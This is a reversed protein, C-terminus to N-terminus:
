KGDYRTDVMDALRRRQAPLGLNHVAFVRKSLFHGTLDLGAIWDHKSCSVGGLFKPLALMRNAFAGAQHVGVAGGSKPSVYALDTTEGSAACRSLDLRYGVAALLGIEWRVYGELWSTNDDDLVIVDLLAASGEYLGPQAEREPLSGDLVACMSAVGSLRLPSDLLMAPISQVLEVQIQGLQEDLRARWNVQVRNGPQMVGRMKSSSGGRVLGAHRGHHDTLVFLIASGEGHPRVSLVIGEAQWDPM